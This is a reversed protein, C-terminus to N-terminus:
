NELIESFYNAQHIVHEYRRTLTLRLELANAISNRRGQLLGDINSLHRWLEAATVGTLLFMIKFLYCIM